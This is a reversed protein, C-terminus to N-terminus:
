YSVHLMSSKQGTSPSFMIKVQQLSLLKAFGREKHTGKRQEEEVLSKTHRARELALDVIM